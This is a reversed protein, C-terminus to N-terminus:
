LQHLLHPNSWIPHLLQVSILFDLKKFNEHCEDFLGNALRKFGHALIRGAEDLEVKQDEWALQHKKIKSTTGYLGYIEGKTMSKRWGIAWMDGSLIKKNITVKNLFQHQNFLFKSLKNLNNFETDTM